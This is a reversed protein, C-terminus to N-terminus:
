AVQWALCPITISASRWLEEEDLISAVKCNHMNNLFSCRYASRRNSIKIQESVDVVGLRVCDCSSMGVQGWRHRWVIELAAGGLEDILNAGTAINAARIAAPWKPVSARMLTTLLFEFRILARHFLRFSYPPRSSGLYRCMEFQFSQDIKM